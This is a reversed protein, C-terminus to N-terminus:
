LPDRGDILVEAAQAGEVWRGLPLLKGGKGIFQYVLEYVEGLDQPVQCLQGLVTRLRQVLLDLIVNHRCRGAIQRNDPRSQLQREAIVCMVCDQWARLRLLAAGSVVM